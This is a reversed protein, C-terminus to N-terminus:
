VIVIYCLECYFVGTAYVCSVAQHNPFKIEMKDSIKVWKLDKQATNVTTYLNSFPRTVRTKPFGPEM